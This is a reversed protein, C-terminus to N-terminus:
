LDRVKYAWMEAFQLTTTNATSAGSWDVWTRAYYTSPVTIKVIAQASLAALGIAQDRVIGLVGVPGANLHLVTDSAAAGFGTCQVYSGVCWWGTQRLNIVTNSLSFDVLAATDEEVADFPIAASAVADYVEIGYKRIIAFPRKQVRDLDYLHATVRRDTEEALPALYDSMRKPDDGITTRTLNQTTTKDTM